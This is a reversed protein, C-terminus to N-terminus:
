RAALTIVFLAAIALVLVAVVGRFLLKGRPSLPADQGGDQLVDPAFVSRVLRWGLSDKPPPGQEPPDTPDTV